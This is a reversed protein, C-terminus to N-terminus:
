EIVSFVLILMTFKCLYWSPRQESLMIYICNIIQNHIEIILSITLNSNKILENLRKLNDTHM